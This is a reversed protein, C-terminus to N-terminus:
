RRSQARGSGRAALAMVIFGTDPSSDFNTTVLDYCGSERRVNRAFTAGALIRTLIAESRYYRGGELLYAYGLTTVASVNSAGAIGESVFGGYDARRADMVQRSLLAETQENLKDLLSEYKLM